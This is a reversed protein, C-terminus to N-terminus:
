FKEKEEPNYGMQMSAYDSIVKMMVGGVQLKLSMVELVNQNFEENPIVVRENRKGNM